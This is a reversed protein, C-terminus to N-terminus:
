YRSTLLTTDDVDVLVVPAADAKKILTPLATYAKREIRRM